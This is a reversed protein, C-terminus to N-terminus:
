KKLAPLVDLAEYIKKCSKSVEPDKDEFHKELASFAAGGYALLAKQAAERVEFDEAGLKVILAEIRADLEPELHEHVVIGVRAIKKPEPKAELPLWQDYTQKPIRYFVTLGDKKFLGDDWVKVLAEAEDANLGAGALRTSFDAKLKTLDVTETLEIRTTQAGAEIKDTWRAARLKNGDREIVMVDAWTHRSDSQLEIAGDVRAIKPTAPAKMIGDYYLFKEPVKYGQRPAVELPTSYPASQTYLQDCKVARLQEVWHGNKVDYLKQQPVRGPNTPDPDIAAVSFTLRDRDTIQADGRPYSTAPWWVLPRGDPFRITLDFTLPKPAHVFIVPKRMSQVREYPLKATPWITFFFEPFTAWEQKMDRQAWAEGRPVSFVGWEHLEYEGEAAACSAALTAILISATLWSYRM